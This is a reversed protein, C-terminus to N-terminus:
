LEFYKNYLIATTVTKDYNKNQLGKILKKDGTWLVGDIELTLALFSTDKEDVDKVMQYALERNKPSVNFSDIFTINRIAFSKIQIYEEFSYGTIKLTKEAHFELEELLFDPSFFQIDGPKNLLLEGIKGKDNILASFIINTDVVIRM